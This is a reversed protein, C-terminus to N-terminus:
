TLARRKKIGRLLINLGVLIFAVPWYTSLIDFLQWSSYYQYYSLLFLGGIAGFIVTWALNYWNYGCLLIYVANALALSLFFVGFVFEDATVLWRNSILLMLLGFSIFFTGGLVGHKDTRNLGRSLKLIGIVIFAYFIIDYWELTMINLEDLLMLLGIFILIIGSWYHKRM